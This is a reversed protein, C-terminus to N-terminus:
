LLTFNKGPCTGDNCPQEETAEGLNQELCTAGDGVPSPNTCSRSRSKKGAGCTVSCASWNEWETYGGPALFFFLISM